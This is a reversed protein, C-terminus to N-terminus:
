RAPKRRSVTPGMASPHLTPLGAVPWSQLLNSGGSKLYNRIAEARLKKPLPISLLSLNPHM